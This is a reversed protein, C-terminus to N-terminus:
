IESKFDIGKGLLKCITSSPVLLNIGLPIIDKESSSQMGVVIAIVDGDKDFVPGGSNGPLVNM